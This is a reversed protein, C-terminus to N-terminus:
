STRATSREEAALVFVDELTPPVRRVADAPVFGELAAAVEREFFEGTNEKGRAHLRTGFLSVDDVIPLKALMARAALRDGTRIEV